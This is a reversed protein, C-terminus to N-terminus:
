VFSISRSFVRKGTFSEESGLDVEDYPEGALGRLFAAVEAATVSRRDGGPAPVDGLVPEDPGALPQNVIPGFDMTVLSRFFVMTEELTVARGLRVSEGTIWYRLLDLQGRSEAGGLDVQALLQLFIIFFM